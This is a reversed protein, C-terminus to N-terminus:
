MEFRLGIRIIRGLLDYGSAARSLPFVYTFDTPGQPVIGPDKDLVNRVNLFAEITRDDALIDYSMSVDFYVFGPLDNKEVTRAAASSAPCGSSCVIYRNDIVLKSQARASL